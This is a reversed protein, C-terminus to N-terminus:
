DQLLAIEREFLKPDDFAKCVSAFRLYAIKDLKLLEKMVTTGIVGSRVEEKGMTRVKQEIKHTVLEIQEPTIPRKNCAKIIGTRVKEPDFQERRGDKKVVTLELEATEYTTFRRSCKECERRRRVEVDSLRSDVVKTDGHSCFPCHM